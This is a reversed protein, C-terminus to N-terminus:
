HSHTEGEPFDGDPIEDTWAAVEVASMNGYPLVRGDHMGRLHIDELYQERSLLTGNCVRNRPAPSSMEERMRQLLEEMIAVPVIDREDPYAFGFLTLHSLLIRWHPGFRQRLRKWDIHMGQMRLLHTIDAGDYREREMVFAKSWIMEEIPSLQVPVGVVTAHPAHAFWEDDVAAVGNGSNFIFDVFADGFRLKGLWHPHSLEMRYEESHLIGAIREYDQKRIFLDMDKMDKTSRNQGMYHNMAYGGGVLYPVGFANLTELVNCYFVENDSTASNRCSLGPTLTQM